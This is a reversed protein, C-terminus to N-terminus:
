GGRQLRSVAAALPGISEKADAIASRAEEATWQTNITFTQSTPTLDNSFPRPIDGYVTVDGYFTTDPTFTDTDVDEAIFTLEMIPLQRSDQRVTIDGHIFWPFATRSGDIHEFTPPNDTDLVVKLLENNSRAIPLLEVTVLYFDDRKVFTAGVETIHWPFPEGDVDFRHEAKEGSALPRSAAECDCPHRYVVSKAVATM